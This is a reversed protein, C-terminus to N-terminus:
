LRERPILLSDRRVYGSERLVALEWELASGPADQSVTMFVESRAIGERLWSLNIARTWRSDHIDLHDLTKLHPLRRLDRLRGLYKVSRDHPAVDPRDM